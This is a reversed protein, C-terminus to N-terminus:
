AITASVRLAVKNEIGFFHTLPFGSKALEIGDNIVRSVSEDEKAKKKLYDELYKTFSDQPEHYYYMEYIELPLLWEEPYEKEIKKMIDKLQHIPENGERIQRVRLYLSFLKRQKENYKREHTKESPLQYRFGYRLPDACGPYASKIETALPMDFIGWAKQFIVKGNYSVEAEHLRVLLPKGNIRLLEKVIGSVAIGTTTKINISEGERFERNVFEGYIDLFFTFGEKHMEKSHIESNNFGIQTPESARVILPYGNHEIVETFVSTIQLGSDLLLTAVKGSKIATEVGYLGGRKYAMRETFRNLVSKLHNFDPTVFLQPQMTTIDFSFKMADLSYPYKKVAQTMCHKSEGISSLLGAGYIRPEEVTGILGYEVTWWHLNRLLSLESPETVKAQLRLVEREAAEIEEPKSHIDEKLLSLHRIAEYLDWDHKTMFARSGVEGFMQLYEAYDPDAIIPAHGAAEHVIDPSPTYEIQNIQRMTVAIPLVRYAQFEMFAGPPIFGDVVVCGWGIKGLIKNMIKIDPIYEVPIGTKKLGEIYSQHAVKGLYNYNKRMIYRWTAHEQWTYASYDQEVCFDILYYPLSSLVPNDDFYAPRKMKNKIAEVRGQEADM